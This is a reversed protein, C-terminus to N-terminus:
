RALDALRDAWARLYRVTDERRRHDLDRQGPPLHQLVRRDSLRELHEIDQLSLGAALLEDIIHDIAYGSQPCYARAHEAWDGDRELALRHIDAPTRQSITQVLHGCNCNGQHTWRYTAGQELRDATTRLADALSAPASM